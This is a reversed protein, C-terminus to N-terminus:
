YCPLIAEVSGSSCGPQRHSSCACLCLTRRPPLEQSLKLLDRTAEKQWRRLADQISKAKKATSLRASRRALNTMGPQQNHGYSLSSIRCVWPAPAGKTEQRGQQLLIHYPCDAVAARNCSGTDSRRSTNPEQSNALPGLGSVGFEM